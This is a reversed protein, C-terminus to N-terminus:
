EAEVAHADVFPPATLDRECRDSDVLRRDDIQKRRGTGSLVHVVHTEHDRRGIEFRQHGGGAEVDDATGRAEEARLPLAAADVDAVGVAVGDLQADILSRSRTSYGRRRRVASAM